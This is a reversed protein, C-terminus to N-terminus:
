CCSCTSSFRVICVQNLSVVDDGDSNAATRQVKKPSKRGRYAGDKAKAKTKAKRSRNGRGKMEPQGSAAMEDLEQAEDASVEVSQEDEDEDDDGDENEDEDDYEDEYASDNLVADAGTDNLFDDEDRKRKRAPTNKRPAPTDKTPAPTDEPPAPTDKAQGPMDNAQGPTIKQGGTAKARAYQTNCFMVHVHSVAQRLQAGELGDVLTLLEKVLQLRILVNARLIM